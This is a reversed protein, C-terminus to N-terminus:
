NPFAFYVYKCPMLMQDCDFGDYLCDVNNCEVNCQNDRFVDWCKIGAKCNKWPNIGIYASLFLVSKLFTVRDFRYILYCNKKGGGEINVM